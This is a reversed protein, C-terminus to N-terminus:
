LGLYKGSRTHIKKYISGFSFICVERLKLCQKEKPKRREM